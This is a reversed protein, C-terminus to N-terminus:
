SKRGPYSYGRLTSHKETANPLKEHLPELFTHMSRANTINMKCM